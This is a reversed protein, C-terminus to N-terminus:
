WGAITAGIPGEKGTKAKKGAEKRVHQKKM